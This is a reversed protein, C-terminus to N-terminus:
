RKQIWFGELGNPQPMLVYNLPRKSKFNEGEMFVKFNVPLKGLKKSMLPSAPDFAFVSDDNEDKYAIPLYWQNYTYFDVKECQKKKGYEPFFKEASDRTWYGYKVSLIHKGKQDSFDIRASVGYATSKDTKRGPNNKISIMGIGIRSNNHSVIANWENDQVLNPTYSRFVYTWIISIPTSFFSIVGFIAFFIITFVLSYGTISVGISVLFENASNVLKPTKEVLLDSGILSVLGRALWTATFKFVDWAINSSVWKLFTKYRERM